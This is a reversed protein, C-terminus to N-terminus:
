SFAGEELALLVACDPEGQHSCDSFRCGAALEEIDGFAESMGEDAHWLQMERM